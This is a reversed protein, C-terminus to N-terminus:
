VYWRSCTCCEHVMIVVFESDYNRVLPRKFERSLGTVPLDAEWRDLGLIAFFGKSEKTQNQNLKGFEAGFDGGSGSGRGDFVMSSKIQM